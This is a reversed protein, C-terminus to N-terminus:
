DRYSVKGATFNLYFWWGSEGNLTDMDSHSSCNGSGGPLFSSLKKGGLIAVSSPIKAAEADTKSLFGRILGNTISSTPSGGLTGAVTVNKFNLAVGSFTVPLNFNGSVFCPATSSTVAPSYPRVTGSLTSLCTGTTDTSYVTTFVTASTSDCVTTSLPATCASGYQVELTGSGTTDLPKFVMLVNTDLTGDSNDEKVFAKELLSNVSYDTLALKTDTFDYCAPWVEFYIHPDRLDMISIRFASVDITATPTMTNTLTQTATDTLTL